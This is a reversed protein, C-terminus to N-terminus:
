EGFRGWLEQLRGAVREDAARYTAVSADVEQAWTEIAQVLGRVREDLATGVEALARDLEGGPVGASAAATARGVRGVEAGRGADVVRGRAASVEDQNVQFM